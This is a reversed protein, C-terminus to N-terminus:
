GSTLMVAAVLGLLQLIVLFVLLGIVIPIHALLARYQDNTTGLCYCKATAQFYFLGALSRPGAPSLTRLRNNNGSNRPVRCRRTEIQRAVFVCLIALCAEATDILFDSVRAHRTPLPVQLLEIGACFFVALFMLPM